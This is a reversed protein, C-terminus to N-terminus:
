FLTKQNHNINNENMIKSYALDYWQKDIECGIFDRGCQKCAIGTAGSGMFPDLVVDGENTSNEILTRMLAVPKQTPHENNKNTFNRFHLINPTGQNNILKANGKRLFLILEYCNFYFSNMVANGKDWVLLNQLIFGADEAKTQLTKLNRPSIMIYCHSNNKLVRYLTPLWDSFDRFMGQILENHKNVKVYVNGNRNKHYKHNHNKGGCVLPYPCDTVICDVSEDPLDKLKEICDGYILNVKSM